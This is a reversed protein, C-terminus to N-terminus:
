ISSGTSISSKCPVCAECKKRFNQFLYMKRPSTSSSSYPPPCSNHQGRPVVLLVMYKVTICTDERVASGHGGRERAWDTGLGWCTVFRKIILDPTQDGVVPWRGCLPRSSFFNHLLHWYCISIRKFHRYCIAETALSINFVSLSCARLGTVPGKMTSTWRLDM